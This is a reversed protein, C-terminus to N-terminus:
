SDPPRAFLGMFIRLAFILFYVRNNMYMISANNRGPSYANLDPEREHVNLHEASGGACDM